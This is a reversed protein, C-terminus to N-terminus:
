DPDPIEVEGKVPETKSPQANVSKKLPASLTVVLAFQQGCRRCFEASAPNVQDCRLCTKTLPATSAPPKIVLPKVDLSLALEWLWVGLITFLAVCGLVVAVGFAVLGCTRLTEWNAAVADM